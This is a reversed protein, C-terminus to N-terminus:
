KLSAPKEKGGDGESVFRKRGRNPMDEMNQESFLNVKFAMTAFRELLCYAAPVDLCIDPMNDYIRKIGQDMQTKTVVVSDCLSKLFKVMLEAAPETTDEIVMLIAEYILEHHFHPVELDILCSTATKIDRSSLYEKLLLVMKKILSKVPRSGGGIGWVNDLRVIGHKMKLLTDAKELALRAQVCSIRGAHNAVFKPPICDDAVARALFKGVMSPAEPCDITIDALDNLVDDFGQMLEEPTLISGYLDSILVSCLERHHPKHELGMEIILYVLKHKEDGQINLEQIGRIVEETDSNEFYELVEEEVPKKFEDYTLKPESMKLAYTEQTDSDYNPDHEDTPVGSEELESGPKGWTGKGGAGGKKPLGRRGTRSKRSNKTYPLPKHHDGNAATPSRGGEDSGEKPVYPYKSPRKARKIVRIEKNGDDLKAILEDEEAEASVNMNNEDAALFGNQFEDPLEMASSM